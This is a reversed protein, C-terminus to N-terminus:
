VRDSWFLAVGRTWLSLVVQEGALTFLSLRYLAFYNHGALTMIMKGGIMMAIGPWLVAIVLHFSKNNARGSCIVFYQKIICGYLM